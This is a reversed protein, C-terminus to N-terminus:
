NTRKGEKKQQPKRDSNGIESDTIGDINEHIGFNEMVQCLDQVLIINDLEPKVMIVLLCKTEMETLDLGLADIGEIFGTPPIYIIEFEQGDETEAIQSSIFDKFHEIVTTNKEKLLDAM